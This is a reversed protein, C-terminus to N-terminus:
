GLEGDLSQWEGAAHGQSLCKGVQTDTQFSFISCKLSNLTMETEIAKYYM